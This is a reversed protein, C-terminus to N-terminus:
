LILIALGAGCLTGMQLLATGRKSYEAEAQAKLATLEAATRELLDLASERDAFGLSRGLEKLLATEARKKPLRGCAAEWAARTDGCAARDAKVLEAFTGHESELLEDSTRGACRIGMSFRGIMLVTESLFAARECLERSRRIGELSCLLFATVAAIIRLM